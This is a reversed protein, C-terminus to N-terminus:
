PKLPSQESKRKHERADCIANAEDVADVYGKESDRAHLAASARKRLVYENWASTSLTKGDVYRGKRQWTQGADYGATYAAYLSRWATDRIPSEGGFARLEFAGDHFGSNFLLRPARKYGKNQRQRM